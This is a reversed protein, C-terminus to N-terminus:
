WQQWSMVCHSQTEPAVSATWLSSVLCAVPFSGLSSLWNYGLLIQCYFLLTGLAYPHSLNSSSNRWPDFPWPLYDLTLVECSRLWLWSFLFLFFLYIFLYFAASFFLFFSLSMRLALWSPFEWFDLCFDLCDLSESNLSHERRGQLNLLAM